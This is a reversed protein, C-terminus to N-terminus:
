CDGFTFSFWKETISFMICFILVDVDYGLRLSGYLRIIYRNNVNGIDGLWCCILGLQYIPDFICPNQPDQESETSFRLM